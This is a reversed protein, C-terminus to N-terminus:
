ISTPAAMGLTGTFSFAGASDLGKSNVPFFTITREGKWERNDEGYSTTWDHITKNCRRDSITDFGPVLAIVGEYIPTGPAKVVGHLAWMGPYM